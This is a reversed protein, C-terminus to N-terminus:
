LPSNELLEWGAELVLALGLRYRVPLKRGVLWFLGFFLIGHGIHSFSYPDALRQSNESSWINGEWWGFKGDPGLPSRGMALEIGGTLMLAGLVMLITGKCSKLQGAFAKLTASLRGPANPSGM